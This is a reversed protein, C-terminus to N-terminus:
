RGISATIHAQLIHPCSGKSRQADSVSPGGHLQVQAVPFSLVAIAEAVPWATGPLLHSHRQKALNGSLTCHLLLQRAPIGSLANCALWTSGELQTSSRAILVAGTRCLLGCCLRGLQRCCSSLHVVLLKAVM